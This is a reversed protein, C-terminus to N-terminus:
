GQWHDWFKKKGGESVCQGIEERGAGENLLREAHKAAKIFSRVKKATEENCMVAEVYTFVFSAGDRVASYVFDEVDGCDMAAYHFGGLRWGFPVGTRESIIKPNLSGSIGPDYDVIGLKELHGLHDPKMDECHVTRAAIPGNYFVEWYPLVFDDWMDPTLMAAIDDCIRGHDPEPDLMKTGEVGCFFKCYDVISATNVRLLEQITEPKDYLDYMFSKGVLEWVSTIPGEWQWGFCVREDPFARKMKEYLELYFGTMGATAFDVPKELSVIAEEPGDFISEFGVEGDDPFHLKAGLTNAHGYKILPTSVPPIEVDPGFVESLLPRGKRFAEICAAHNTYYDKIAIGALTFLANGYAGVSWGFDREERLAKYDINHEKM